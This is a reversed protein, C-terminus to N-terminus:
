GPCGRYEDMTTGFMFKYHKQLYTPRCTGVCIAM